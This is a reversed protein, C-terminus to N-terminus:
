ASKFSLSLTKEIAPDLNRSVPCHRMAQTIEEVLQCTPEVESTVSFNTQISEFRFTERNFRAQLEGSTHRLRLGAKQAPNRLFLHQCTLISYLFVLLGPTKENIALALWRNEEDSYKQVAFIDNEQGYDAKLRLRFIRHNDSM